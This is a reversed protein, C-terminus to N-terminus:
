ARRGTGPKTCVYVETMEGIVGHHPDHFRAVEVRLGSWAHILEPFDYGYRFTVLSGKESVPNGHYEPEALHEVTGDALYRARRESEVRTKYTPATFVYSGGPRLTRCVESMVRDPENVHEMVDLTIVLDFSADAFTQHELNENRVGQVLEGLTEGPFLQSPLYRRCERALKPSVGRDAPSSEHIRARRWRPFMRSLVLALARERPISGCGSCLLHDRFWDHAAAFTASSECIPCFGVTEYVVPSASM